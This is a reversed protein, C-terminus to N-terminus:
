DPRPPQSPNTANPRITRKADLPPSRNRRRKISHIIRNRHPRPFVATRPANRLLRRREKARCAPHQPRTQLRAPPRARRQWCLFAWLWRSLKEVFAFDDYRNGLICADVYEERIGSMRLYIKLREHFFNLLDKQMKEKEDKDKIFPDFAEGLMDFLPLPSFFKNNVIMRIVGLAARRLAFPDKSGTPKQGISWFGALTDLKDAVAVVVSLPFRPHPM